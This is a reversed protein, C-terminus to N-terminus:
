AVYNMSVWGMDIRAWIAGNITKKELIVVTAGQYLKDVISSDIGAGARLNLCSATVTGTEVQDAAITETVTELEVSPDLVIWGQECRGWLIDEVMRQDLIEVKDGSNLSGNRVGEPNEYLVAANVLSAYKKTLTVDTNQEPQTPTDVASDMKMYTNMCVWGYECRGWQIGAVSRQELIEVQAGLYLKGVVTGNPEERVTLASTKIVTAFQSGADPDMPEEKVITGDPTKTVMELEVYANLCIWGRSIRAWLRGDVALQELIEVKDNKYLVDVIADDPNARVNLTETNIVTGYLKRITEVPKEPVDPQQHATDYNTHRLCIWGLETKGWLDGEHEYTATITVLDGKLVCGVVTDTLGPDRCLNVVTGVVTIQLPEIPDGEPIEIEPETPATTPETTPETTETPKTAPPETVPPKTVPPETVPPKTEPPETVPPKTAPPETVPPKTAPPETVPPKTAPPETVPPKTEPPETVPPKTAPPETVPPKTAPPETVPPKTEPPNTAPPTTPETAGGESKVEWQAYLTLGKTSGDLVTVQKGGTASTFWGKFERGEYTATPIIQATLNADYGQVNYTSVTGGTANFIVYTYNSPATRGYGGELYMYAESLRRKIHGVSRSGSAMSYVVFAYILENGGAGSSLAGILTEGKNLWNPGCNFVLSVVADFQSQSYSLSHKDIFQNVASEYSGMEKRLEADAEEETMPTNMYHEVLEDPCKTGYGITYQRNADRYPTASFGEFDKIVSICEESVKMDSAARVFAPELFVLSALMAAALFVCLLKKMM